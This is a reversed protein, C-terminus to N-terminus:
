HVAASAGSPGKGTLSWREYSDAITDATKRWVEYMALVRDVLATIPWAATDVRVPIAQRQPARMSRM